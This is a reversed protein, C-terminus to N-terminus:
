TSEEEEEKEGGGMRIVSIGGDTHTACENPNLELSKRGRCSAEPVDQERYM